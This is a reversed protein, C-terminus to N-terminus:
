HKPRHSSRKHNGRAKKRLKAAHQKEEQMAEYRRKRERALKVDALLEETMTAKRERRTLRGSYYEGAGEVLTGMQFYKPIATSDFGQVRM